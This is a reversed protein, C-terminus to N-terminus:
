CSKRAKGGFVYDRFPIWKGDRIFVWARQKPLVLVLTWVNGCAAARIRHIHTAPFTRLWPARYQRTAILTGDGTFTDELYWGKLGLSVFRRPHDHPDRSWDDGLFNHLYLACGFARALTWRRLYVPCRGAGTMEEYSLLRRILRQMKASVVYTRM